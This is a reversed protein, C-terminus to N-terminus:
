SNGLDCDHGLLNIYVQKQQPLDLYVHPKTNCSTNIYNNIGSQDTNTAILLASNCKIQENKITINDVTTPKYPEPVHIFDVDSDTDSSLALDKQLISHTEQATIIRTTEELNYSTPHPNESKCLQAM